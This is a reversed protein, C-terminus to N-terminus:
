SAYFSHSDDFSFYLMVYDQMNMHLPLGKTKQQGVHPKPFCVLTPCFSHLEHLPVITVVPTKPYHGLIHKEVNAFSHPIFHGFTLVNSHLKVGYTFIDKIEL